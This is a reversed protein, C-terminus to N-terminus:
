RLAIKLRFVLPYQDMRYGYVPLTEQTDVNKEATMTACLHTFILLDNNKHGSKRRKCKKFEEKFLYSSKM